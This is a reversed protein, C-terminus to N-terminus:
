WLLGWIQPLLGPIELQWQVAGSSHHRESNPGCFLRTYSWAYRQLRSKGAVSGHHETQLSLGPLVSYLSVFDRPNSFATGSPQRM